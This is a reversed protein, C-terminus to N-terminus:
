TPSWKLRLAMWTRLAELAAPDPAMAQTLLHAEPTGVVRVAPAADHVGCARPKAGFGM